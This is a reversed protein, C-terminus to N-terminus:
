EFVVDPHELAAQADFDQDELTKIYRDIIARTGGSAMRRSREPRVFRPALTRGTTGRIAM